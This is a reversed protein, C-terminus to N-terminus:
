TNYRRGIIYSNHAVLEGAVELHEAIFDYSERVTIAEGDSLYVFCGWEERSIIQTIAATNIIKKQTRDNANFDHLEIFM